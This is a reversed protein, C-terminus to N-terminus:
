PKLFVSKATFNKMILALSPNSILRVNKIININITRKGETLTSWKPSIAEVSKCASASLTQTTHKADIWRILKM